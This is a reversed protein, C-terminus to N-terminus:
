PTVSVLRLVPCKEWHPKRGGVSLPIEAGGAKQDSSDMPEHGSNRYCDGGGARSTKGGDGGGTGGVM